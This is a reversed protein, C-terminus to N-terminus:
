SVKLVLGQALNRKFIRQTRMENVSRVICFSKDELPRKLFEFLKHVAQLSRPTALGFGVDTVGGIHVSILM